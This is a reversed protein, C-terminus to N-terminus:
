KFLMKKIHEAKYGRKEAFDVYTDENILPPLQKQDGILIVKDGECDIKGMLKKGNEIKGDAIYNDVGFIFDFYKNISYVRKHYNRKTVEKITNKYKEYHKNSM